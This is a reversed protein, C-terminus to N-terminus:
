RGVASRRNAAGAAPVDMRPAAGTRVCFGALHRKVSCRMLGPAAACFADFFADNLNLTHVTVMAPLGGATAAAACVLTM